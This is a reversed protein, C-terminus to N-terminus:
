PAILFGNDLSREKRLFDFRAVNANVIRKAIFM